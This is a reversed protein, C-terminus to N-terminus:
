ALRMLLQNIQASLAEGKTRVDHLMEAAHRSMPDEQGGAAKAPARTKKAAAAPSKRARRTSGTSPAAAM